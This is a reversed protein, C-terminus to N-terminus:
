LEVNIGKAKLLEQKARKREQAREEVGEWQERTRKKDHTYRAIQNRPVAKYKTNAGVFMAEHVQEPAVVSCKLLRGFLLYNNMTEAAVKAVEKDGFELFGYHKLKGLKKNRLVRLQTIEGFQAFYKRLEKEEFGDPLRGIYIVGRKALQKATSKAAAAVPKKVTHTAPASEEEMELESEDDTSAFAGDDSEESEESGEGEEVAEEESEGSLLGLQLDAEIDEVLRESVKVAEVTEAVEAAVPKEAKKGAKKGKNANKAM